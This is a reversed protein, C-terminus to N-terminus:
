LCPNYNQKDAESIWHQAFKNETESPRRMKLPCLRIEQHLLLKGLVPSISCPLKIHFLYVSTCLFYALKAKHKAPSHYRQVDMKPFKNPPGFRSCPAMLWFRPSKHELPWIFELELRDHFVLAAM